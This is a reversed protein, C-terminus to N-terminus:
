PTITNGCGQSYGQISDTELCFGLVFSTGDSTYTYIYPASNLPDTPTQMMSKVTKLANSMPDSGTINGNYVPYQMTSNEYLNLANNLERMNAMRQADRSKSKVNSLSVMITALLLAIIAVVVILEILTFGKKM